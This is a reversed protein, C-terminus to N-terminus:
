NILEIDKLYSLLKEYSEFCEAQMGAQRAGNVNVMRDDIFLCRELPTEVSEAAKIYCIAEPKLFGTNFSLVPKKFIKLFPYTNLLFEWHVPDTDSLLGVPMIQATNLVLEQMGPIPNFISCWEKKFDDPSIALEYNKCINKHFEEFTAKGTSHKQFWPNKMVSELDLSFGSHVSSDLYKSFLGSFDVGVLVRGLDFIVAEIKM